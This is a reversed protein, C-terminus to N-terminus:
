RDPTVGTDVTAGPVPAPLPGPVAAPAVGGGHALAPLMTLLVLAALALSASGAVATRMRRVPGADMRWDGARSMTMTSM